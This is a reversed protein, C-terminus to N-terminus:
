PYTVAEDPINYWVRQIYNCSKKWVVKIRILQAPM